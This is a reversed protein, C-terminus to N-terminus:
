ELVASTHTPDRVRIRHVRSAPANHASSQGDTRTPVTPRIVDSAFGAATTTRRDLPVVSAQLAILGLLDPATTRELFPALVWRLFLGKHKNM